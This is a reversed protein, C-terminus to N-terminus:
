GHARWAEVSDFRPLHTLLRQPYQASQCAILACLQALPKRDNARRYVFVDYPYDFDLQKLAVMEESGDRNLGCADARPYLHASKMLFRWMAEGILLEGYDAVVLDPVISLQPKGMLTIGYRLILDGQALVEGAGLSAPSMLACDDLRTVLASVRDSIPQREPLTRKAM